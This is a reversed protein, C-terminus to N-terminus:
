QKKNWIRKLQRQRLESRFVTNQRWDPENQTDVKYFAAVVCRYKRPAKATLIIHPYYVACACAQWGFIQAPNGASFRLFCLQMSSFPALFLKQVRKQLKSNYIMWSTRSLSDQIIYVRLFLPTGDPPNKRVPQADKAFSFPLLVTFFVCSRILNM